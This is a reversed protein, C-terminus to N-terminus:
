SKSWCHCVYANIMRTQELTEVEDAKDFCRIYCHCGVAAGSRSMQYLDLFLDQRLMHNGGEGEGTM